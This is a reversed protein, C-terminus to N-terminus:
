GKPAHVSVTGRTGDVTVTDGTRILRTGTRVNVVAPLGYERAVTSGHSLAGGIDVVLGAAVTFLPTWGADTIPAVLIEGPHIVSDSRPDLIVRAPGTVTGRSVPIGTLTRSEPLAAPEPAAPVPRGKFTEPVVVLRNEREETRRRRITEAATAREMKEAKLAVIEDWTLYYMDWTDSIAGSEVLEKALARFFKRRRHMAVILQSKTHERLPVWRQAARLFYRFLPRQWASLRALADQSAAERDARAGEEIAAPSRTSDAGMYNRVM